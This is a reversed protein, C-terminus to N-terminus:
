ILDLRTLIRKVTNPIDSFHTCGDGYTEVSDHLLRATNCRIYWTGGVDEVVYLYVFRSGTVARVVVRRNDPQSECVFDLIGVDFVVDFLMNELYDMPDMM